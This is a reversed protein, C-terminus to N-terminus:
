NDFYGYVNRKFKKFPSVTQDFVDGKDVDIGDFEHLLMVGGSCRVLMKGNPFKEVVEGFLSNVFQHKEIDTYFITARFIRLKSKNKTTIAGYFPPSVARILRDINFIDDRWDIAGDLPNRKPYFTGFKYSNQKKYIIKNKVFLGVNNRIINCMSITNKYHLTEATDMDNISFTITDVIPGSDVGKDYKFLNTSFWKRGEIISWNMPSRGKGFPLNRASGHMGHVGLSFKKLINSPILRQWGICFGLKFKNDDFFKIDNKDTISYSKLKHVSNFEDKYRYLDVYGAVDNKRAIEPTITILSIKLGDKILIRGVHLTTDKCGFLHILM